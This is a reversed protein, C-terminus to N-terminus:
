AAQVLAYIDQLCNLQPVHEGFELGFREELACLLEFLDLSDLGLEDHLSTGGSLDVDNGLSLHERLVQQIDLTSADVLTHTDGAVYPMWTDREVLFEDVWISLLVLDYWRDGFRWHDRLRGEEHVCAFRTAVDDISAMSYSCSEAYLKRLSFAEHLYPVFVLLAEALATSRGAAEGSLLVSLYATQGLADYNFASVLGLVSWPENKPAIVFQALCDNWLM